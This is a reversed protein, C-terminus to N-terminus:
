QDRSRDNQRDTQKDFEQDILTALHSSNLWQESIKNIPKSKERTPILHDSSALPIKSRPRLRVTSIALQRAPYTHTVTPSSM